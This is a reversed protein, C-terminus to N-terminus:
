QNSDLSHNMPPRNEETRHVFRDNCVLLYLHCHPRGLQMREVRAGKGQRYKTIQMVKHKYYKHKTTFTNQSDWLRRNAILKREPAPEISTRCQLASRLGEQAYGLLDLMQHTCKQCQYIHYRAQARLRWRTTICHLLSYYHFRCRHYVSIRCHVEYRDGTGYKM